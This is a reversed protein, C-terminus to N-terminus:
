TSKNSQLPKIEKLVAEKKVFSFYFHSMFTCHQKVEIVIANTFYKVITKVVSKNIKESTLELKSYQPIYANSVINSLFKNLVKATDKGTKM